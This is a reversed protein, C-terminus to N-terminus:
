IYEEMTIYRSMFEWYDVIPANGIPSHQGAERPSTTLGLTASDWILPQGEYNRIVWGANTISSGNNFNADFNCKLTNRNPVTWHGKRSNSTM